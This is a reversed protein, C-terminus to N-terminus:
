NKWWKKVGKIYSELAWFNAKKAWFWLITMKPKFLGFNVFSQRNELLKMNSTQCINRLEVPSVFKCLYTWEFNPVQPPKLVNKVVRKLKFDEKILWWILSFDRSFSLFQQKLFYPRQCSIIGGSHPPVRPLRPLQLFTLKPIPSQNKHLFRENEDGQLFGFIKKEYFSM